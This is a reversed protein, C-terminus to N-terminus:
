VIFYFKVFINNEAFMLKKPPYNLYKKHKKIILAM